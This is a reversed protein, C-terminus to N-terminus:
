FVQIFIDVLSAGLEGKRQLDSRKPEPQECLLFSVVFMGGTKSGAGLLGESVAM